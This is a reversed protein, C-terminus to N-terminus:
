KLFQSVSAVGWAKQFFGVHRFGKRSFILEKAEGDGGSILSGDGGTRRFANALQL